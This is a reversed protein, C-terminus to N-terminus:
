IHILSLPVLKDAIGKFAPVLEGLLMRVGQLLVLIGSTFGLAKLLGYILYNTGGAYEAVAEPGALIVVLMYFVFMVISISMSTDKFFQLGKPLKMDQRKYVDTENQITIQKEVM